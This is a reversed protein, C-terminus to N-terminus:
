WKGDRLRSESVDAEYPYGRKEWYGSSPEDTLEIRDVYKANKYGWKRPIILRLPFGHDLPLSSEGVGYAMISKPELAEEITTSEEYVNRNCHYTIHTASDLPDVLQLLSSIPVGVWPVDYVSWGTVCHFDTEQRVQTMQRLQGFTLTVPNRVLGDIQLTWSDLKNALKQEDVTFVVFEELLSHGEGPSFPFEESGADTASGTDVVADSEVSSNSDRTDTDFGKDTSLPGDTNVEIDSDAGTRVRVVSGLAFSDGECAQLLPSSLGLVAAKGFWQLVTRRELTEQVIPKTKGNSGGHKIDSDKKSM